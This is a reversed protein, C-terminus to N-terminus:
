SKVFISIGLKRGGHVDEECKLVYKYVVAKLLNKFSYHQPIFLTSSDWKALILFHAWEFLALLTYYYSQEQVAYLLVNNEDM